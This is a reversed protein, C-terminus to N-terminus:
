GKVGRWFQVRVLHGGSLLLPVYIDVVELGCKRYRVHEWMSADKKILHIHIQILEEINANWNTEPKLTSVYINGRAHQQTNVKSACQM